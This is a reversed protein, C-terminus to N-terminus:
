RRTWVDLRYDATRLQREVEFDRALTEWLADTAGDGTQPYDTEGLWHVLIVRGTVARRLWEGARQLDGVDWYYAVESLVALDFGAPDPAEAPFTMREISVGARDGVRRRALDVAIASIDIALLRDCLGALRETLVGHACGIEIAHPYHRDSLAAITADFKAAEYDSSALDWPDTDAGFIGDFYGADLSGTM